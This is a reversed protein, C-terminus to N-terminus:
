RGPARPSNESRIGYDLPFASDAIHGPREAHSLFRIALTEPRAM